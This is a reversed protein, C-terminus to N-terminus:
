SNLSCIHSAELIEPAYDDNMRQSNLLKESWIKPDEDYYKDLRDYVCSCYEKEIGQQKCKDIFESKVNNPGIFYVVAMIAIFAVAFFIVGNMKRDESYKTNEDERATIIFGVIMLLLGIGLIIAFYKLVIDIGFILIIGIIVAIILM